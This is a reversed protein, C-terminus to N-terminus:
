SDQGTRDQKKVTVTPYLENNGTKQTCTNACLVTWAWLTNTSFDSCPQLLMAAVLSVGYLYFVPFEHVPVTSNREIRSSMEKHQTWNECGLILPSPHSWPLWPASWDTRCDQQGSGDVLQVQGLYREGEYEHQKCLVFSIMQFCSVFAFM